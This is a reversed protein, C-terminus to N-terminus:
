REARVVLAGVLDWSAPTPLRREGRRRDAPVVPASGRRERARRDWIVRVSGPAACSVRLRKYLRTHSRQVIVLLARARTAMDM